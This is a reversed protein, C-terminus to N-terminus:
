DGPNEERTAHQRELRMITEWVAPGVPMGAKIYCPSCLFRGTDRDLTGEESLCAESASAYGLGKYEPIQRPTRRCGVCVLNYRIPEHFGTSTM